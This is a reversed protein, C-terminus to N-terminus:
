AVGGALAAAAPLRIEFTSGRGPESEVAIEGGWRRVFSQSLFLGLGIGGKRLSVFPEFIRKREEPAIGCGDDTVRVRLVEDREATLTVTGGPQCAQVANLVLNVLAHQLEAEDVRAHLGPPLPGVDVRVRRERATPEVLRAVARVATELDVIDASTQGRSM